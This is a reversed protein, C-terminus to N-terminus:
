VMGSVQSSVGRGDVDAQGFGYFASSAKEGESQVSVGKEPLHVV